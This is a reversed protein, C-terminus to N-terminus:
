FFHQRLFHLQNSLDSSNSACVFNTAYEGSLQHAATKTVHLRWGKVTDFTRRGCGPLQCETLASDSYKM